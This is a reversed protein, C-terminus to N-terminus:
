KASPTVAIPPQNARIEIQHIGRNLKCHIWSPGAGRELASAKAEATSIGQIINLELM